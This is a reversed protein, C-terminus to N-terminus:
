GMLVHLSRWHPTRALLGAQRQIQIERCPQHYSLHMGCGHVVELGIGEGKERGLSARALLLCLTKDRVLPMQGGKAM